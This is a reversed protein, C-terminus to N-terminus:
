YREPNEQIRKVNKEKILKYEKKTSSWFGDGALANHIALLMMWWFFTSILLFAEV